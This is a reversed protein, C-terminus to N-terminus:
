ETERSVCIVAGVKDPRFNQRLSELCLMGNTIRQVLLTRPQSPSNRSLGGFGHPAGNMM